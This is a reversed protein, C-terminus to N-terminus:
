TNARRRRKKNIKQPGETIAGDNSVLNGLGSSVQGRELQSKVQHEFSRQTDLQKDLLAQTGEIM